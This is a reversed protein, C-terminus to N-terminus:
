GIRKQKKVMERYKGPTINKYRRFGRIFSNEHQYGVKCAIDSIKEDTHRLLEEACEMRLRTFYSYITENKEEKFLQSALSVSVGVSDVIEPIGIPDGLRQRMYEIMQQCLIYEKSQSSQQVKETLEMVQQRLLSGIDNLDMTSIQNHFKKKEWKEKDNHNIQYLEEGLNNLCFLLTTPNWYSKRVETLINGVLELSHSSDGAKISEILSRTDTVKKTTSRTNEQLEGYTIISSYGKYLRFGLANDAEYMARKLGEAGKQSTSIGVSVSFGLIKEINTLAKEIYAQIEDEEEEHQLLLAVKDKGLVVCEIRWQKAIEETLINMLGFKLLSHSHNTFRDSWEYFNDISIIAMTLSDHTWNKFYTNWKENIENNSTINGVYLDYFFKSSAEVRVKQVLQSLQARDSLLDIAMNELHILDRRFIDQDEMSFLDKIRRIPRFEVSNVYFIIIGGLLLAIVSVSFVVNRIKEFKALISEQSVLSIFDWNTLPSQMKNSLLIKDEYEIDDLNDEKLSSIVQNITKSKFHHNSTSYLVQKNQDMIFRISNSDSISSSKLKAFLEEENLNIAIIGAFNGQSMIKRFLTIESGRFKAGDPVKRRKVIMMKKGFEDAVNTWESDVFTIKSSSYGQPISVFSSQDMDYIYISKIYPSNNILTNLKQYIESINNYSGQIDSNLFQNVNPNLALKIAVKDSEQIYEDIYNMSLRLMQQQPENLEKQLISKSTHYSTFGVILIIFFVAITLFLVLRSQTNNLTNKIWNPLVKSM